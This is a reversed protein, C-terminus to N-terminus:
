GSPVFLLEVEGFAMAVVLRLTSRPADWSVHAVRQTGPAGPLLTTSVAGARTECVKVLTSSTLTLTFSENEEIATSTSAQAGLVLKAGSVSLAARLKQLTLPDGGYASAQVLSYTGNPPSADPVSPAAGAKQVVIVDSALADLTPCTPPPPPPPPPAADAKATSSGSPMPYSPGSQTPPLDESAGEDDAVCTQQGDSGEVRTEGSKCAPGCATVAGAVLCVVAALM